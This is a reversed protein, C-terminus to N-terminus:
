SSLRREFGDNETRHTRLNQWPDRPLLHFDKRPTPGITGIVALKVGDVEARM